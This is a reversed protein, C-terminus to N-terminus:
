PSVRRMVPAGHGGHGAGDAHQHGLGAEVAVVAPGLDHRRGETIGAHFHDVGPQVLGGLHDGGGRHLLVDVYNPEGNQRPGVHRQKGAHSLQEVLHAPRVHQDGAPADNGGLVHVRQSARPM